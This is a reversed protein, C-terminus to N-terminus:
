ALNSANKKEIEEYETKADETIQCIMEDNNKQL